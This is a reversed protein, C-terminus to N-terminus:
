RLYTYWIYAGLAVVILTVISRILCSTVKKLVLVIIVIAVLALLYTMYNDMEM